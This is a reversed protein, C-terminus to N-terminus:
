VRWVCYQEGHITMCFVHRIVYHDRLLYMSEESLFFFERVKDPFIFKLLNKSNTRIQAETAAPLKMQLDLYTLAKSFSRISHKFTM